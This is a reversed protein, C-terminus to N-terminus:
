YDAEEFPIDIEYFDNSVTVTYQEDGEYRHVHIYFNGTIWCGYDYADKNKRFYKIAKQLYNKVSTNNCCDVAGTEKSVHHFHIPFEINDVTLTINNENDEIMNDHHCCPCELHMYGYEGMRLDSEEYELESECSECIYIRPYPKDVTSNTVVEFNNKLVKM